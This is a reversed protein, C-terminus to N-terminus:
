KKGFILGFIGIYIGLNIVAMAVFFTIIKTNMDGFYLLGVVVLGFILPLSSVMLSFLPALYFIFALPTIVIVLVLKLFSELNLKFM